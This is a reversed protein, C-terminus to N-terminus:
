VIHHVLMCPIMTENSIIVSPPWWFLCTSFFDKNTAHSRGKSVTEEIFNRLDKLNVIELFMHMVLFFYRNWYQRQRGRGRDGDLCLRQNKSIRHNALSGIDEFQSWSKFLSDTIEVVWSRRMCDSQVKWEFRIIIICHDV